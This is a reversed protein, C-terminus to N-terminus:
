HHRNGVWDVEQAFPLNDKWLRTVDCVQGIEIYDGLSDETGSQELKDLEADIDDM